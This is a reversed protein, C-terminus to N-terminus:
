LEFCITIVSSTNWWEPSMEECAWLMLTKLHYTCLVQDEKPCDKQILERKAFFRLLHYVIQQIQTWSQILIVEAISFSLRWLQNNKDCQLCLRQGLVLHCGNQVVESITDSMPWGFKRQRNPWNKADNPWQPCWLSEVIDLPYGLNEIPQYKIAPGSVTSPIRSNAKTRIYHHTKNKALNLAYHIKPLATQNFEYKKHKWNYKMKGVFLLQVFSPDRKYSEIKFCEISDALGSVDNPLVPINGSFALTHANSQLFDGDDICTYLPRIYFEASSGCSIQYVKTEPCNSPNLDQVHDTVITFSSKPLLQCTSVIFASASEENSEGEYHKVDFSLSAMRFFLVIIIIMQLLM